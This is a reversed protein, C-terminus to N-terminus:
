KFGAIMSRGLQKWLCDVHQFGAARLWGLQDEMPDPHERSPTGAPRPTGVAPAGMPRVADPGRRYLQQLFAENPRMNDIDYFCGGEALVAFLNAYLRQKNEPTLHHIARASVVVDFKETLDAPLSGDAFDGLHYRFRDGFRSMRERGIEMMAESIDLGVATAKPFAELVAAAVVGHGSGVDLVRIPAERDFPLTETMINFIRATAQTEQDELSVYQSVRDDEKWHHGAKLAAADAQMQDQM